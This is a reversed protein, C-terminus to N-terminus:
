IGAMCGELNPFSSQCMMVAWNVSGGGGKM